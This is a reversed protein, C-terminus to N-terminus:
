EGEMLNSILTTCVVFLSFGIMPGSHGYRFYFVTSVIMGGAIFGQLWKAALKVRM